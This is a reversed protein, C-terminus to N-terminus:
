KSAPNAVMEELVFNAFAQGEFVLPFLNLTM